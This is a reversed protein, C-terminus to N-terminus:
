ADVKERTALLERLWGPKPQVDDDIMVLTKTLPWKQQMERLIRNRVSAFGGVPETVLVANNERCEVVLADPPTPRNCAVMIADAGQARLRELLDAMSRDGRTPVAIVIEADSKNMVM